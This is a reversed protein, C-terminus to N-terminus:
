STRQSLGDIVSTRLFLLLRVSEPTESEICLGLALSLSLLFHCNDRVWNLSLSSDRKGWEEAAPSLTQFWEAKILVAGVGELGTVM